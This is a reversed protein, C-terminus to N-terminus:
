GHMNVTFKSHTECELIYDESNILVHLGHGRKNLIYRESGSTIPM